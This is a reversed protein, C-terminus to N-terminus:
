GAWWWLRLLCWVLLVIGGAGPLAWAWTPSGRGRERAAVLLSLGGIVLCAATTLLAVARVVEAGRM